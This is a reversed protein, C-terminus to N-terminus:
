LGSSLVTITNGAGDVAYVEIFQTGVTDIMVFGGNGTGGVGNYIKCDGTLPTFTAAEYVTASDLTQSSANLTTNFSCLLQPVFANTESRFSWGFVYVTPAATGSSYLKLKMYNLSSGFIASNSATPKGATSV